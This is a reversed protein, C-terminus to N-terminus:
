PDNRLPHRANDKNELAEKITPRGEIAKRIAHRMARFNNIYIRKRRSASPHVFVNTILVLNDAQPLIGDEVSQMVARAIATQAPGYFLSAHRLSTPKVTPIMLTAPKVQINPELIVQLSEQDKHLKSLVEAYTKGVPGDKEGILLDIHALENDSGVLAEGTKLAFDRITKPTLGVAVFRKEIGTEEIEFKITKKKILGLKELEIRLEERIEWSLTDGLVIPKRVVGVNMDMYNLCEKVGIAGSSVILRILKQIERQKDIAEKLKGEKIFNFIQLLIGPIVNASQLIMGKAGSCLAPVVNEDWGLLVNIKSSVKELITMFYKMDGSSDKIAVIQDSEEVLDEVIQWPVYAGTAQPINYLVIPIDTKDCIEVYHEYLGKPGPRLYYPNVILAADAGVDQAHKTSDIVLKTGTEGTGAIVPVKGNVEDVAVEVLKRREKFTMNTFEGTSGSPVVGTVGQGLLSKILGRFKDENFEETGEDFPTVLAPIVGQLGLKM